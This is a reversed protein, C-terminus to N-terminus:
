SNLSVLGSEGHTNGSENITIVGAATAARSGKKVSDEFASVRENEGTLPMRIIYKEAKSVRAKLM